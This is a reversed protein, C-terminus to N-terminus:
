ALHHGFEKLLLWRMWAEQHGTDYIQFYRVLNKSKMSICEVMQPYIGEKEIKTGKGHPIGDEWILNREKCNMPYQFSIKELILNIGYPDLYTTPFFRGDHQTLSLFYGVCVHSINDMRLHGGDDIPEGKFGYIDLHSFPLVEEFHQLVKWEM